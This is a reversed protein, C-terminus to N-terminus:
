EQVDEITTVSLPEVEPKPLPQETVFHSIGTGITYEIYSGTRAEKGYYQACQNGSYYVGDMSEAPVDLMGHDYSKEIKYTPTLSACYSVPLGEFVYYGFIQGNGSVLYVYAIKGEQEWTDMWFNILERTPSYDMSGAPQKSQLNTFNQDRSKAEKETANPQDECGVVLLAAVIIAIIVVLKRM